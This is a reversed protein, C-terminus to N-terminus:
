PNGTASDYSRRMEQYADFLEEYHKQYFSDLIKEAETYHEMNERDENKKVIMGQNTGIRTMLTYLYIYMEDKYQFTLRTDFYGDEEDFEYELRKMEAQLIMDCEAGIVAKLKHRKKYEEWDQKLEELTLQNM